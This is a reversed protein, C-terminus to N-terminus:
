WFVVLVEVGFGHTIYRYNQFIVTFKKGLRTDSNKWRCSPTMCGTSQHFYGKEVMGSPTTKGSFLTVLIRVGVARTNKGIIVTKWWEGPHFCGPSRFFVKATTENRQVSLELDKTEHLDAEFNEIVINEGLIEAQNNTEHQHPLIRGSHERPM